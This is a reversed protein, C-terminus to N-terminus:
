IKTVTYINDRCTVTYGDAVYNVFTLGNDDTQAAAPNFGVFSGGKVIIKGPNTNNNNLTWRPTECEFYGGNIEVVGGNKAYILDFHSPDINATAGKNTFTGGNIVVHGGNAWVAMNYDNKGVGNIVGEGEITLYGGEKVCYVGDGVTDEPLSITCGNLVVTKACDVVEATEFVVDETLEDSVIPDIVQDNIIFIGNEVNVNIAPNKVPKNDDFTIKVKGDQQYIFM